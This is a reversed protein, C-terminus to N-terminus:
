FHRLCHLTFVLYGDSSAHCVIFCSSVRHCIVVCISSVSPVCPATPNTCATSTLSDVRPLGPESAKSENLASSGVRAAAADSNAKLLDWAIVDAGVVADIAEKEKVALKRLHAEMAPHQQLIRLLDQFVMCACYVRV